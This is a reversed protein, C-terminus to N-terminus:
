DWLSSSHGAFPLAPEQSGPACAPPDDSLATHWKSSGLPMPRSRRCVMRWLCLYRFLHECILFEDACSFILKHASHYALKGGRETDKPEARHFTRRICCGGSATTRPGQGRRQPNNGKICPHTSARGLTSQQRGGGRWGNQVQLAGRACHQELWLTPSVACFSSVTCVRHLSWRGPCPFVCRPTRELWM